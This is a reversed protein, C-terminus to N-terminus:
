FGGTSISNGVFTVILELSTTGTPLTGAGGFTITGTQSTAQFAVTGNCSNSTVTGGTPPSNLVSVSDGTFANFPVAGTFTILPQTILQPTTGSWNASMIFLDGPEATFVLQTTSARLFIINGFNSQTVVTTGVPGAAAIGGAYLHYTGSASSIIPRKLAVDYTVWLEGLVTSTPVTASPAVAIQFKGLDTTTIPLTSTTSRTYYCNQANSGAKCEVGYAMNRDLRESIAHASNEMSFKSSYSPSSSNYEMAMIMTGLASGTIYPSASSIFEFVLGDFCYEEFNGAIQSLFPFTNRLGANIPYAYNTFQGATSSSLIDGLFERRRVRVLEDTGTAFSSSACTKYPIILDNVAVNSSYDGSGILKSIKAGLSSGFVKGGPINTMGGLLGGGQTLAQKILPKMAKKLGDMNYAGSGKVVQKNVARARAKQSKTKTLSKERETFGSQNGFL